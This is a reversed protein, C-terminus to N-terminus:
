MRENFVIRSTYQAGDNYYTELDALMEALGEDLTEGEERPLYGSEIFGVNCNGGFAIRDKTAIVVFHQYEGENDQFEIDGSFVPKSVDTVTWDRPAKGADTEIAIRSCEDSILDHGADDTASMDGSLLREAADDTLCRRVAKEYIVRSTTKGADTVAKEQRELEGRIAEWQELTIATRILTGNDRVNWLGNDQQELDFRTDAKPTKM